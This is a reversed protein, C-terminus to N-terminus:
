VKKVNKTSEREKSHMELKHAITFYGFVVKTGNVAPELYSM